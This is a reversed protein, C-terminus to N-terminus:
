ILIGTLIISEGTVIAVQDHMRKVLNLLIIELIELSWLEKQNIVQSALVIIQGILTRIYKNSAGYVQYDIAVLNWPEQLKWKIISNYHLIKQGLM